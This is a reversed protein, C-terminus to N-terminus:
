RIFLSVILPIYVLAFLTSCLVAVAAKEPQVKLASAYAVTNAAMPVISLVIMVKHIYDSYLHFFNIDLFIVLGILTPWLVFKALFTICLFKMDIVFKELGSLGVGIIMMGLITYAGRFYGVTDTYIQGFQIGSFNILIGIIFAYIAPLKIIKIISENVSHHGRATIFFGTTSEYLIIGLIMLAVYGIAKDGLVAIAVPLGFYGTNSSGSAFAVINKTSDHWLLKAISYSLLCISSATLYFIIPISLTGIDIKTTIVGHFVIVPAIIYILLSAISEKQVKLFKGAIFGLFIILYLPIIKQLLNLFIDM